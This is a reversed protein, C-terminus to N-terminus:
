ATVFEIETKVEAPTDPIVDFYDADYLFDDYGALDYWIQGGYIVVDLVDLEDGVDPSCWYPKKGGYEMCKEKCIVRM